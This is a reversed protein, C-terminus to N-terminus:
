WTMDHKFYFYSKRRMVKTQTLYRNQIRVWDVCQHCQSTMIRHSSCSNSSSIYVVHTGLHNTASCHWPATSGTVATRATTLHKHHQAQRWRSTNWWRRPALQPKILAMTFATLTTTAINQKRTRITPTFSAVSRGLIRCFPLSNSSCTCLRPQVYIHRRIVTMRSSVKQPLLRCRQSVHCGPRPWAGSRHCEGSCHRCLLLQKIINYGLSTM